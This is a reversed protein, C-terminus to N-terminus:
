PQNRTVNMDLIRLVDDTLKRKLKKIMTKSTSRLLIDGMYLALIVFSTEDEYIYIHM